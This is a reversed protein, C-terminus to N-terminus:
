SNRLKYTINFDLKRGTKKSTLRFKFKKNWLLENAYGVKVLDSDILDQPKLNADLGEEVIDMHRSAPTIQILKKFDFSPQKPNSRKLNDEFLVDFKAYKYGGDDILEAVQVPSVYGTMGNENVFKFLYYFKKNTEVM